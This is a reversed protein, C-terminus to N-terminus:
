DYNKAGNSIMAFGSTYPEVRESKYNSLDSHPASLYVPCVKGEESVDM